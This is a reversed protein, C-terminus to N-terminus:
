GAISRTRIREHEERHCNSCLLITHQLAQEIKTENLSWLNYWNPEKTTPDVHHFELAGIYKDYGCCSCKGGAAAVAKQKNATWKDMQSRNFCVKCQTKRTQYFKSPTDEGCTLCGFNSFVYGKPTAM